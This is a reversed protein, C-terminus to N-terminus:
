IRLKPLVLIRLNTDLLWREGRAHRSHVDWDWFSMEDTKDLDLFREIPCIYTESGTASFLETLM